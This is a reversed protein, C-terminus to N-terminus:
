IFVGGFIVLSTEFHEDVEYCCIEIVKRCGFFESLVNKSKGICDKWVTELNSCCNEFPTKERM